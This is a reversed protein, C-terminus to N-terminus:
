ERTTCGAGLNSCAGDGVAPLWRADLAGRGPGDAPGRPRVRDASGAMLPGLRDRDIGLERLLEGDWDGSHQDLLGTGSAMSVSVAEVGGLRRTLYEGFSVFR